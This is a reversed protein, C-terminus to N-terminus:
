HVAGEVGGLFRRVRSIELDGRESEVARMLGELLADVESEPCRTSLSVLHRYKLEVDRSKAKLESVARSMDNSRNRVASIRSRLVSVPALATGNVLESGAGNAGDLAGNLEAEWAGADDPDVADNPPQSHRLRYDEEEFARSLNMVKQRALQQAKMKELLAEYERRSDGLQTSATRLSAHLSDIAQQKTKLESQFLTSTESLLHTIATYVRDTPTPKFASPVFSVTLLKM